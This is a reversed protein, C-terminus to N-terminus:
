KVYLISDQFTGVNKVHMSLHKNQCKNEAGLFSAQQNRKLPSLKKKQM